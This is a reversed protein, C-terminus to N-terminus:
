HHSLMARTTVNKCNFDHNPHSSIKKECRVKNWFLVNKVTRSGHYILLSSVLVLSLIKLSKRFNLFKDDLWLLLSILLLNYLPTLYREASYYEVFFVTQLLFFYVIFIIPIGKRIFFNNPNEKRFISACILFLLFIGAGIRAPLCTKLPLLWVSVAQLYSNLNKSYRSYNQHTLPYKFTEWRSLFGEEFQIVWFVIAFIGLAQIIFFLWKIQWPTYFFLFILTPILIFIGAFRIFPLLFLFFLGLLLLYSNKRNELYNNLFYFSLLLCFIFPPETWAFSHVLYIPTSFILFLVFAFKLKNNRILKSYYWLCIFSAMMFIYNMIVISSKGFLRILIPYVPPKVLFGKTGFIGQQKIEEAIDVYLRSDYTFGVGCKNAIFFFASVVIIATLLFIEQYDFRYKKQNEKSLPTLNM